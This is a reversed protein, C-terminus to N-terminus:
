NRCILNQIEKESTATESKQQVTKGFMNQEFHIANKFMNSMQEVSQTNWISINQNFDGCGNFMSTMNEVLGVNWSGIPQNFNQCNSFMSTM